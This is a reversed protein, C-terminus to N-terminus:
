YFIIINEDRWEHETQYFFIFFNNIDLFLFM